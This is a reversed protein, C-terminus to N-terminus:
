NLMIGVQHPDLM